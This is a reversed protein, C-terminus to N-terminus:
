LAGRARSGNPCRPAPSCSPRMTPSSTATTKSSPPTPAPPIYTPQPSIPSMPPPPPRRGPARSPTLAPSDPCDGRALVPAHAGPQRLGPWAADRHLFGSDFAATLGAHRALDSITRLGLRTATLRAVALAYTNAFGLPDSITLGLPRLRARLEDVTTVTPDKLI